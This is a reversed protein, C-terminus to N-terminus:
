NIVIKNGYFDSVKLTLLTTYLEDMLKQLADVEEDVGAVAVSPDITFYESVFCLNFM